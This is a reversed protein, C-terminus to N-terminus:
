NITSQGTTPQQQDFFRMMEASADPGKADTYSGACSGGSWAHGLGHVTWHEMIPRGDADRQTARTYAHGDPVQGKRVAVPPVPKGEANRGGPTGDVTRYHALLQEANSPHVTTDRDGHFVIVPVSAESSATPVDQHANSTGRGQMASFASSLDQAAGPALGSHVGVAAYLDPYTAGMIAAMAGGASMGAVYVRGDAVGYEEIVQRTIGAIIAPEGQGRQQDSAKFWNWCKQMNANQAQAPYAVLFTHTEALENMSTGAAFDDPNQTCGHLMVVLPVEEQGTYGSPVYLKYARGGAPGAYSREVFRGGAPVVAPGPAGKMPGPLGNPLGPLGNPLSGPLVDPLSDLLGPLTNPLNSLGDPLRPVGRYQRSPRLADRLTDGTRGFDASESLRAAGGSAGGIMEVPGETGGTDESDVPASIGGLARQIAATAEALRGENTLRMAESMSSQLTKSM